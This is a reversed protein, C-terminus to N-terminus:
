KISAKYNINSIIKIDVSYYDYLDLHAPSPPTNLVVKFAAKSKGKLSNM